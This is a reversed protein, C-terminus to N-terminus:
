SILQLQQKRRKGGCARRVRQDDRRRVRRQAQGLRASRPEGSFLNVDSDVVVTVAFAPNEQPICLLSLAPSALSVDTADVGIFDLEKLLLEPAHEALTTNASITMTVPGRWVKKVDLLLDLWRPANHEEAVAATLGFGVDLADVTGAHEANHAAALAAYRKMFSSYQAFWADWGGGGSQEITKCLAGSSPEIFRGKLCGIDARSVASPDPVWRNLGRHDIAGAGHPTNVAPLDWDLDLQPSLLVSMNLARAANITANLAADSATRLPSGPTTIPAMATANIGGLYWTVPLRLHAAGTAALVQLSRMAAPSGLPAIQPADASHSLSLGHRFSQTTGLISACALALSLLSNAM